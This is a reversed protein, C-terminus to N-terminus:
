IRDMKEWSISCFGIESILWPSYSRKCIQLFYFFSGKCYCCLDQDIIFHICFKILNQGDMRLINLLFCNRVDILPWLETDRPGMQGFNSSQRSKNTKRTVQFFSSSGILIYPSSHECCNKLRALASLELTPPPIQGFNSIMWAKMCTRMVQLSSTSGILFSPALTNM